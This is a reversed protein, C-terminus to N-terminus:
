VNKLEKTYAVSDRTVGPTTTFTPHNNIIDFNREIQKDKYYKEDPVDEKRMKGELFNLIFRVSKETVPLSKGANDEFVYVPIYDGNEANPLESSRTLNGPAWKEFIFRGQVYPYRLTERVETIERVFVGNEDHDRYTGRRMETQTDSWVIRHLVEGTVSTGQDKLFKNLQEIM